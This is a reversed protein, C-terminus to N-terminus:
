IRSELVGAELLMRQSTPPVFKNKIIESYLIKNTLRSTDEMWKPITVVSDCTNVPERLRKKWRKPFADIVGFYTRTLHKSTSNKNFFNMHCFSTKRMLSTKLM